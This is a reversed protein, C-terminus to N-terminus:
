PGAAGRGAGARSPEAALREEGDWHAELAVCGSGDGTGRLCKVEFM